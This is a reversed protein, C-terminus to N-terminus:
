LNYHDLYADFSINFEKISKQIDNALVQQCFSVYKMTESCTIATLCATDYVNPIYYRKPLVGNEICNDDKEILINGTSFINTIQNTGREVKKFNSNFRFDGLYDTNISEFSMGKVDSDSSLVKIETGYISHGISFLAENTFNFKSYLKSLLKLDEAANYDIYFIKGNFWDFKRFVDNIVGSILSYFIVFNDFLPPIYKRGIMEIYLGIGWKDEFSGSVIYHNGSMLKNDSTIFSPQFILDSDITIQYREFGPIDSFENSYMNPWYYQTFQDWQYECEETTKESVCNEYTNYIQKGKETLENINLNEFYNTNNIDFQKNLPKKLM